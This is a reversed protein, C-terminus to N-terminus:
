VGRRERLDLEGGGGGLTQVLLVVAEAAVEGDLADGLRDADVELEGAQGHVRPAVLAGAELAAGRDVALVPADVEVGGQLGATHQDRLLDGQLELDGGNTASCRRLQGVMLFARDDLLSVTM